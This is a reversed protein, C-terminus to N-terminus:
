ICFREELKSVQASVTATDAANGKFMEESIPWGKSMCVLGFVIQPDDRKSDRKGDRSLGRAAM